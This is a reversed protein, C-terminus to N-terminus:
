RSTFTNVHECVYALQEESLEAFMPLSLIQGALQETAPFDGLEWGMNAYAAQMHIPVPYHIGSAIGQEQLYSQLDERDSTQVVFLHYVHKRDNHETFCEVGELHDKYYQVHENRAQNWADLHPLKVGLIAGQIGDLRENRGIDQHYYKQEMGHNRLRRMAAAATDDSTTIAGGEGYAGLNKGPYFSFAGGHGISGAKKGKYQAGHAQAADEFVFLNHKQALELIPDMDAMQGYLHVPVIAKTRETIKEEILATNILADDENCDVLVPVAGIISIAEATAFFTNAPIILEDGATIGFARFLLELASTGSGVGVCHKTGCYNAFDAEFQEVAPGLVYASSDLVQAIAPEVQAKISQYQAQLDLFPVNVLTLM